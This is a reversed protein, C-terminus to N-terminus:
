VKQKGEMRASRGYSRQKGEMRLFVPTYVRHFIDARRCKQNKGMYKSTKLTGAQGVQESWWRACAV